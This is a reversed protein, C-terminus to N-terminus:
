FDAIRNFLVSRLLIWCLIGFHWSLLSVPCPWLSCVSVRASSAASCWVIFALNAFVSFFRYLGAFGYLSSTFAQSTSPHLPTLLLLLLRQLYWREADAASAFRGRELDWHSLSGPGNRRKIGRRLTESYPPLLDLRLATPSQIESRAATATLLQFKLEDPNRETQFAPSRSSPRTDTVSIATM